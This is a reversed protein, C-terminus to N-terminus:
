KKYCLYDVIKTIPFFLILISFFMVISSIFAYEASKHLITRLLIYTLLPTLILLGVFTYKEVNSMIIKM